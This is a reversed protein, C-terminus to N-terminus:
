VNEKGRVIQLIEQDSLGLITTLSWLDALKFDEPYRWRECLTRISINLGKAVEPNRIRKLEMRKKITVRVVLKKQEYDSLKVRAM